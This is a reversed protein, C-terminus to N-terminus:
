LNKKSSELSELKNLITKALDTNLFDSTPFSNRIFPELYEISATKADINGFKNKLSFGLLFIVDHGSCLFKKECINDPYQELLTSIEEKVIKNSASIHKLFNDINYTLNKEVFKSFDYHSEKEKTFTIGKKNVHNGLRLRGVICAIEYIKERILNLDINNDNDKPIKNKSFFENVLKRLTEDSEFFIIELDRFDTKIINEAIINEIYDHYDRDIIGFVSSNSLNNQKVEENWKIFFNNVAEWGNRDYFEIEKNWLHTEFFNADTESEVLLRLKTERTLTFFETILDEDTSMLSMLSYGWRISCM